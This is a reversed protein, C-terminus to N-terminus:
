TEKVFLIERHKSILNLPDSFRFIKVKLHFCHVDEIRASTVDFSKRYHLFLALMKIGSHFARSIELFCAM